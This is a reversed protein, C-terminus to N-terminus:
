RKDLLQMFKKASDEISFLMVREHSLDTKQLLDAAKSVMEEKTKVIHWNKIDHNMPKVFSIVHAGAYLAELCVTSFGEYSSPHLLIKSGQMLRLVESHQVVGLLSLAESLNLKRVLAKINGEDEGSGCHIAKISPFQEKLTAIMLVFQDFNKQYSFSGVGIVDIDRVVSLEPFMKKDIANPILHAPKIKHTKYFEEAVFDSIAVLENPGPRICKVYRNTKRADQGCIWCYHNLKNQKGFWKGILACEGCWFSFIGILNNQKKIKKLKKWVSRWLMLRKLKRKHMGGFAVVKVDNWNYEVKEYPYLFSLVIINLQPFQNKLEKVLLQQSPLWATESETRPFAPSLIVLTQESKNM